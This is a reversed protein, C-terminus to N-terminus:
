GFESGVVGPALSFFPTARSRDTLRTNSNAYHIVNRAHWESSDGTWMGHTGNRPTLKGANRTHWESSDAQECAKRVM